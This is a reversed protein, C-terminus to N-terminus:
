AAMQRRLAQEIVPADPKGKSGRRKGKSSSGKDPTVSAKMLDEYFAMSDPQEPEEPELMAEVMPRAKFGDHAWKEELYNLADLWHWGATLMADLDDHAGANTPVVRALDAANKIGAADLIKEYEADMEAWRRKIGSGYGHIDASLQEYKADNTVGHLVASGDIASQHEGM